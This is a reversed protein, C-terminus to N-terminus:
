CNELKEDVNNHEPDSGMEESRDNVNLLPALIRSHKIACLRLIGQSRADETRRAQGVPDCCTVGSCTVVSMSAQLPFHCQADGGATFASVARSFGLMRCVVAAEQMTWHDDCVTGWIGQYLVEVRGKMSGGVLRIHNFDASLGQNGKDGKPGPEGKPGRTGSDGKSGKQGPLGQMGRIGQEGKEGRLGAAGAIGNFGPLGPVGQQGQPGMPGRSGPDGKEGTDGKQGQVGPLGVQGKEGKVGPLGSSGAPGPAGKSGKEGQPGHLGAVLTINSVMMMLNANSNKIITIEEELSRRWNEEHGMYKEASSRESILSNAFSSKLIEETYSTNQEQFKLIEREMKLVKYVLLGQGATLLLLYVGLATLACCTSPKRQGQPELDAPLLQQYTSPLARRMWVAVVVHQARRPAPCERDCLKSRPQLDTNMEPAAADESSQKAM